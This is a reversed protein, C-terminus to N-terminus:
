FPIDDDMDDFGGAPVRDGAPARDRKKAPRDRLSALIGDFSQATPQQDLIESATRKTSAEFPLAIVMKSGLSGDNKHYEEVILFLGIPKDMLEAFVDAQRTETGGGAARVTVTKQTVNIKRTKLCTLLADLVKRGYLPTGDQSYTWLTVYDATQGDDTRFSFEIGQTGSRATVAEALTFKGVYAGKTTIRSNVKAQRASSTDLEYSTHRM